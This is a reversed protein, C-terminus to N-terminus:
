RKRWRQRRQKRWKWILITGTSILLVILAYAIMTREAM